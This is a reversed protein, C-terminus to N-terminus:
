QKGGRKAAQCVGEAWLGHGSLLWLSAEPVVVVGQAVKRSLRV